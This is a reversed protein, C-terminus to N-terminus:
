FNLVSKFFPMTQSLFNGIPFTWFFTFFFQCKQSCMCVYFLCKNTKKKSKKRHVKGKVLYCFFNVHVINFFHVVPAPPSDLHGYLNKLKLSYLDTLLYKYHWQSSSTHQYIHQREQTSLPVSRANPLNGKNNTAVPPRVIKKREAYHDGFVIQFKM